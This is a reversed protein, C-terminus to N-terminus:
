KCVDGAPRFYALQADAQTMFKGTGKEYDPSGACYYQGSRTHVWVRAGPDPKDPIVIQKAPFFAAYLLAVVLLALVAMFPAAAEASRYPSASSTRVEQTKNGMVDPFSPMKRSRSGAPEGADDKLSPESGLDVTASKRPVKHYHDIRAGVGSKGGLPEELRVVKGKCSFISSTDGVIETPLALTFEISAGEPVKADLYLFVGRESIDRVLALVTGGVDGKAWRVSVPMSVLHRRLGRQELTTNVMIAEARWRQLNPLSVQITGSSSSM